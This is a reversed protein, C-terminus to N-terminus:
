FGAFARSKHEGIEKEEAAQMARCNTGGKSCQLWRAVGRMVHAQLAALDDSVAAGGGGGGGAGAEARLEGLARAARDVMVAKRAEGLALLDKVSFDAGMTAKLLLITEALRKACAAGGKHSGVLMALARACKKPSWDLGKKKTWAGLDAVVKTLDVDSSWLDAKVRGTEVFFGKVALRMIGRTDQGARLAAAHNDLLAALASDPASHLKAAQSPLPLAFLGKVGATNFFISGNNIGLEELAKLSADFERQYNETPVCGPDPYIILAKVGDTSEAVRYVLHAGKLENAEALDISFNELVNNFISDSSIVMVGAAQSAASGSSASLLATFPHAGKRILSLVKNQFKLPLSKIGSTFRTSKLAEAPPVDLGKKWNAWLHNLDAVVSLLESISVPLLALARFFLWAGLVNAASSPRTVTCFHYGGCVLFDYNYLRM